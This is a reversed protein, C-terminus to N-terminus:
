TVRVVLGCMPKVQLQITTALYKNEDMIAIM